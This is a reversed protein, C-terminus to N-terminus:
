EKKVVVKQYLGDGYTEKSITWDETSSTPLWEQIDHEWLDMAFPEYLRFMTTMIQKWYESTPEHYDLLVLKGGKRLARIAEHLTRKRVPTPMEHLLFFLVVQDFTERSYPLQQADNCALTINSHDSNGLKQKLNELQAPIVDIVDLTADPALHQVLTPTFDAYVCAVQLTEGQILSSGESCLERVCEDRLKEFNGWLVLNVLFTHDLVRICQPHGYAWWYEEQLYQPIPPLESSALPVHQSSLFRKENRSESTSVHTSFQRRRESIRASKPRWWLDCAVKVAGRTGRVATRWPQALCATSRMAMMTLTLNKTKQQVIVGRAIKKRAYM